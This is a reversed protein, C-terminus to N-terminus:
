LTRRRRVGAWWWSAAQLQEQGHDSQEEHDGPNQSRELQGAFDVQDPLVSSRM